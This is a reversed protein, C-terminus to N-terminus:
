SIYKQKAITAVARLREKIWERGKTYISNFPQAETLIFSLNRATAVCFPTTEYNM